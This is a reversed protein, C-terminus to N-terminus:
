YILQILDVDAADAGQQAAFAFHTSYMSRARFLRRHILYRASAVYVFISLWLHQRHSARVDRVVFFGEDRRSIRVPNVVVRGLHRVPVRRSRNPASRFGFIEPLVPLGGRSRQTKRRTVRFEAPRSRSISTKLARSAAARMFLPAVAPFFSSFFLGYTGVYQSYPTLCSFFFSLFVVSSLFITPLKPSAM